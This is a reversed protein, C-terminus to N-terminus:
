APNEASWSYNPIKTEEANLDLKLANPELILSIEM